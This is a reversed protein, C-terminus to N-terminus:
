MVRIYYVNEKLIRQEGGEPNLPKVVLEIAREFNRFQAITVYGKLYGGDDFCIYIKLYGRDELDKQYEKIKKKEYIYYALFGLLFIVLGIVM